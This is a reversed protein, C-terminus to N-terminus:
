NRVADRRVWATVFNLVALLPAQKLSTWNKRQQQIKQKQTNSHVFKGIHTIAFRTYPNYQMTM